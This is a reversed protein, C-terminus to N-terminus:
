TIIGKSTLETIIASASAELEVGPFPPFAIGNAISSSPPNSYPYKSDLIISNASPIYRRVVFFDKNVNQPVEGDLEIKLRAKPGTSSNGEINEQPPIVKTIRYSYNENNGFRIEDGEIIELPYDITPFQTGLPESGGPFYESPSPIYGLDGQFSDPGYAENYNSSSM